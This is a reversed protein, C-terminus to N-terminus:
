DHSTVLGLSEGGNSQVVWSAAGSQLPLLSAAQPLATIDKANEESADSM